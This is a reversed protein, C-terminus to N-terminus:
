VPGAPLSLGQLDSVWDEATELPVLSPRPPIVRHGAAAALRYGDGTSGTAPYSAGGTALIAARARLLGEDTLVGAFRGEALGARSAAVPGAAYM